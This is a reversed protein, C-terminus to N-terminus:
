LPDYAPRGKRAQLETVLRLMTDFFSENFMPVHTIKPLHYFINELPGVVVIPKHLGVAIGTEVHRGGRSSSRPEETFAVFIDCSRVDEVDLVAYEQRREPPAASSYIADRETETWDTDLWRSIVDFGLRHLGSRVGKLEDRRSYRASLFVKVYM